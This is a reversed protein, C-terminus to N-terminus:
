VALSLCLQIYIISTREVPTLAAALVVGHLICERTEDRGGGGVIKDASFAAIVEAAAAAAEAM